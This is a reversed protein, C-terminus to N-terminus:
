HNWINYLNLANVEDVFAVDIFRTAGPPPTLTKDNFDDIWKCTERLKLM